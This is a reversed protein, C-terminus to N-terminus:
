GIVVYKIFYTINEVTSFYIFSQSILFMVTNEHLKYGLFCNQLNFTVNLKYWSDSVAKTKVPSVCLQVYKEKKLMDTM